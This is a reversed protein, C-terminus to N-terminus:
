NKEWVCLRCWCFYIFLLKYTEDFMSPDQAQARVKNVQLWECEVFVDFLCLKAEIHVVNMLSSSLHEASIFFVCM